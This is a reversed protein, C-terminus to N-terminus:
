PRRVHEESGDLAQVPDILGTFRPYDGAALQKVGDLPRFLQTRDADTVDGLLAWFNRYWNLYM